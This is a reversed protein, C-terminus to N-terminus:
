GTTGSPVSATTISLPAIAGAAISTSYTFSLTGAAADKVTGVFSYSGSTTPTGSIAGASSMTLGPPLSGSTVSWSYPATGGTAVLSASYSTGTTGIPISTTTIALPSTITSSTTTTTTVPAPSITFTIAGSTGGFRGPTFVSIKATGASGVLSSSITATLRSSSVSATPQSSGNWLVISSSSFNSGNVTLTVGVRATTSTPSISSIVPLNKQASAIVPIFFLTLFSSILLKLNTKSMPGGICKYLNHKFYLLHWISM